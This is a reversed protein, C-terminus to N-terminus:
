GYTLTQDARRPQPLAVVALALTLVACGILFPLSFVPQGLWEWLHHWRYHPEGLHHAIQLPVGLMIPAWWFFMSVGYLVAALGHVVSHGGELRRSAWGFLLWATLAGGLFGIIGAPHVTWPTARTMALSMVPTTNDSNIRAELVNDGRQAYVTIDTPITTPDCAPHDPICAYANTYIPESHEWGATQLRQLLQDLAQPRSAAPLGAFSASIGTLSYEGGDGLLLDSVSNWSLQSGYIMFVAPPDTPDVTITQDGPYLQEVTAALDNHDLPRSGLWALWTGLSGAFLGCALTLISAWVVVSRSAPRGLRARLGHRALNAAVRPGSRHPALDRVTELIESGRERRYDRPYFLLLWRHM